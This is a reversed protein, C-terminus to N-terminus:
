YILDNFFLFIDKLTEYLNNLVMITGPMYQDLQIKFTDIFIILAIVSIVFVLSNKFLKPKKKSKKPSDLIFQNDNITTKTEQEKTKISKSIKIKTNNSIESESERKTLEIPIKFFWKYNCSGCQLLRGGEPILKDQINFTKSCKECTVIM